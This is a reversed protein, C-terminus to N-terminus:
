GDKYTTLILFTAAIIVEASERRSHRALVPDLIKAFYGHSVPCEIKTCLQSIEKSVDLRKERRTITTPATILDGPIGTRFTGLLLRFRKEPITIPTSKSLKPPPLNLVTALRSNTEEKTLPLSREAALYSAFLPRSAEEDPRLPIKKSSLAHITSAATILSSPHPSPVTPLLQSLSRQIADMLPVNVHDREIQCLNPQSRRRAREFLSLIYRLLINGHHTSVGRVVGSRM